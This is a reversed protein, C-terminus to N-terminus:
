SMPTIKPPKSITLEPLKGVWKQIKVLTTHATSGQALDSTGKDLTLVNPNGHVEIQEGDINQPDFWAGTTLAICDQRIQDTLTVGSLCAGRQNFIKIIDGDRIGFRSATEPHLVCPERGKIKLSQAECGNDLQSHLRAHPQGSILHLQDPKACGLWEIPTLWTPHGPCNSLDMAAIAESYLMIKGSQTNLAAGVPNNIFDRMQVRTEYADPTEFKGTAVFDDFDPLTFGASDAINKSQLWLWRLWDKESKNDTFSDAFGLHRAIHKFIQHDSLAEGCPEMLKSMYILAPDRRNMMIDNRELACSSPFIIDARRATATWSHDHVIVTDPKTWARELRSLDQQHHFPNGGVWYVLRIDPYIHNRGAFKYHGGPNELMKTIHSVPIFDKVPNNGQPLSPWPILQAPRGVPTTSGYGFGFGTGPQGIQGLMSALALGMWIPQEGHDARTG